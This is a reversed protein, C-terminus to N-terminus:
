KKPLVQIFKSYEGEAWIDKHGSKEGPIVEAKIFRYKVTGRPLRLTLRQGVEEKISTGDKLVFEVLTTTKKMFNGEKQSFAAM